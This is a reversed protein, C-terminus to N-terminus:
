DAFSPAAVQKRRRWAYAAMGAIGIGLLTLTAPEPTGSMQVNLGTSSSPENYV